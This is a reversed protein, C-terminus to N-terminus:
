SHNSPRDGLRADLFVLERRLDFVSGGLFGRMQRGTLDLHKPIHRATRMQKGPLSHGFIGIPKLIGTNWANRYVFATVSQDDLAVDTVQSIFDNVRREQWSVEGM